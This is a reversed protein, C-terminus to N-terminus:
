TWQELLRQAALNDHAALFALAWLAETETWDAQTRKLRRVMARPSALSARQRLAIWCGIADTARPAESSANEWDFVLVRGDPACTMNGPGLDGHALVAAYTTMGAAALQRRAADPCRPGWVADALALVPKPVPCARLHDCVEVAARGVMSPSCSRQRPPFGDLALVMRDESWRAEFCVTPVAFSRDAQNLQRVMAAENAFQRANCPGAGIKVVGAIAKAPVRYLLYLRQRSPLAPWTMLWEVDAGENVERLRAVLAACERASVLSSPNEVVRALVCDLGLSAILRMGDYLLWRKRTTRPFLSLANLRDRSGGEAAYACVRHGRLSWSYFAHVESM